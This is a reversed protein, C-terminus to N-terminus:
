PERTARIRLPAIRRKTANEVAITRNRAEWAARLSDNYRTNEPIRVNSRKLAVTAVAVSGGILLAARPIARGSLDGDNVAASVLLVLAGLGIGERVTHLSVSSKRTEPRFSIAPIAMTVMALALKWSSSRRTPSM